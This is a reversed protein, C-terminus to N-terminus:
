RRRTEELNGILKAIRLGSSSRKARAEESTTLFVNIPNFDRHVIRL